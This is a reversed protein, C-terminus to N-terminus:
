DTTVSYMEFWIGDYSYAFHYVGNRDDTGVLVVWKNVYMPTGPGKMADIIKDGNKTDMRVSSVLHTKHGFLAAWDPPGYHRDHIAYGLPLKELDLFEGTKLKSDHLM